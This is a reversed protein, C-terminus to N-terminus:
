HFLGWLDDAVAGPSASDNANKCRLQEGGVEAILNFGLSKIYRMKFDKIQPHESQVPSHGMTLGVRKLDSDGPAPFESCNQFILIQDRLFLFVLLWHFILFDQDESREGLTM